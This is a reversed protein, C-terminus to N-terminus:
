SRRRRRRTGGKVILSLELFADLADNARRADDRRARLWMKVEIEARLTRVDQQM